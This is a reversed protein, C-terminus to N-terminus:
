EAGFGAVYAVALPSVTLASVLETRLRGLLWRALDGAGPDPGLPGHRDEPDARLDDLDDDGGFWDEGGSRRRRRAEAAARDRERRQSETATVTGGGGADHGSGGAGDRGGGVRADAAAGALWEEFDADEYGDRAAQWERYRDHGDEPGFTSLCTDYEERHSSLQDYADRVARFEEESGGADPHCEKTRRRYARKIAAPGADDDVGLTDYFTEVM